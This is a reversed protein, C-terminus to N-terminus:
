LDGNYAIESPDLGVDKRMENLLVLGKARVAEWKYPANGHAILLLYDILSDFADMVSQPAIMGIYAYAKIRGRNFVDMEEPSPLRGVTEGKDMNGLIEAILDAGLRYIALKDHFGKLHKQKAVDLEAKVSELLEQSEHTLATRLATLEREQTARLEVQERDLKARYDALERDHKARESQMLRDAWVKGLWNSLGFVILGGGGLSAIFTLAIQLIDIPM